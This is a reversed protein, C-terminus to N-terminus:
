RCAGFIGLRFRFFNRCKLRVDKISISGGYNTSQQELEKQRSDSVLRRSNSVPPSRTRGRITDLMGKMTSQKYNIPSESCLLLTLLCLPFVPCLCAVLQSYFNIPGTSHQMVLTGGM